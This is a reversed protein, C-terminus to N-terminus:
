KRNLILWSIMYSEIGVFLVAMPAINSPINWFYTVLVSACTALVFGFFGWMYSRYYNQINLEDNLTENLLPDRRIALRVRAQMILSIILWIQGLILAGIMTWFVPKNEKLQPLMSVFALYALCLIGIIIAISMTSKYRKNDYQEISLKKM